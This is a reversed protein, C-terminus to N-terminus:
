SAMGVIPANLPHGGMSGFYPADGFSFIGGDRAVMWYGHGDPSAAMGVIPAALYHGGMSLYFGADGFTFIGGDSAVMWYGRGDPTAAMGVIPKNLPHGGMSGYFLANGFSFIGGDSAVLWYGGGDPTAAMGVIPKNLPQGGESGWYPAHFSFIGGDSAVMWYGDGLPDPAAGVIPQNLPKGGESGWYDSQFNFIGGDSAVMLYELHRFMATAAPSSLSPALGNGALASLTELQESHNVFNLAVTVVAATQGAAFSVFGQNPSGNVTAGPAGFLGQVASNLPEDLSVSFQVGSPGYSFQQVVGPAQVSLSPGLARIIAISTNGSPGNPAGGAAVVKGDSQAAVAQLSSPGSFASTTTGSSGFYPNVVGNNSNLQELFMQNPFSTTFGAVTLFSGQSQYAASTLFASVHVPGTWVNTGDPAYDMVTSGGGTAPGAAALNGADLTLGTFEVNSAVPLVGPTTGSPNFTTDLGGASTYAAISASSGSSGGVYADGNSAVALSAGVAQAATTAPSGVTTGTGSNFREVFSQRAGSVIETGAAVINGSPDTAVANFLANDAGCVTRSFVPSGGTTYEVVARAQFSCTGSVPGEYGVAVINGNPLVTVANASGNQSALFPSASWVLSGAPGFLDVRFTSSASQGGASVAVEQSGPSGVLAVGTAGTDGTAIVAGGSGFTPDLSGPAALAEGAPVVVLALLQAVLAALGCAAGAALGRHRSGRRGHLSKM